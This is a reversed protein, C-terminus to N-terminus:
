SNQQEIRTELDEIVSQWEAYSDGAESWLDRLESNDQQIREIVKLVSKNTADSVDTPNSEVWKDASETYSNRTGWNGQLRAVVEGAALADCADSSDLYDQPGCDLVRQLAANVLSLDQVKELGYAWDCASDNDFNGVGWAGM